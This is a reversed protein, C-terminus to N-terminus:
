FIRQLFFFILFLYIETGSINAKSFQLELPNFINDIGDINGLFYAFILFMILYFGFGARM